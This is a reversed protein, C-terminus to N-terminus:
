VMVIGGNVDMINGTIFNSAQSVLFVVVEAIDQPQGLRGLPVMEDKYPENVTMPTAVPGPAIGNVHIGYRTGNKAAWKVFAHIGGKSACYHPGAMLGGIRGAISGMCVVKGGGQKKMHPWVAQTMLYTSKLNTNIIHDWEEETFDELEKDYSGMIAANNVLIDIRGWRQIVQKVCQDIDEKKLVDCQLDLVERTHKKICKVTDSCPLLDALSVYSGERALAEAISKGIGRAAGTILSVKGNLDIPGSIDPIM